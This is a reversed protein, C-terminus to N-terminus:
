KKCPGNKKPGQLWLRVYHRRRQPEPYDDFGTRNHLIWRNNTFLMQGPHLDFEVRLDPRHIVEELIQLARSQPPSFARGTRQQGVEIYYHMYRMTLEDGARNFIPYQSVPAEGQAFQGRRDFHWSGYLTELVEPHSRVLEGHLAHASLLQSRGGRRATQLCLLGVTDPLQPNFANDTHFTSEANTVSFRAGQSVQQGTDRVDYLLAGEINQVSPRGLCQGLSWYAAQADAPAMREVPLRGILAFGRGQELDRRVPALAEICPAMREADFPEQGLAQDAGQRRGRVLQALCDDPLLHIWHDQEDITAARWARPAAASSPM